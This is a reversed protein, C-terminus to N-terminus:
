TRPDTATVIDAVEECKRVVLHSDNREIVEEAHPIEHGPLVFFLRPDSRIREYSAVSM